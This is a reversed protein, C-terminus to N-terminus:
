KSKDQGDNSGKLHNHLLRNVRHGVGRRKVQHGCLEIQVVRPDKVHQLVDDDHVNDGDGSKDDDDNGGGGCHHLQLTDNGPSLSGAGVNTSCLYHEM